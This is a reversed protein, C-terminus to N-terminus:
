VESSRQRVMVGIMNAVGAGARVEDETMMQNRLPFYVTQVPATVLGGGVDATGTVGQHHHGPDLGLDLDLAVPELYLGPETVDFEQHLGHEVVMTRVGAVKVKM